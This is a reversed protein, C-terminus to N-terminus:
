KTVSDPFIAFNWDRDKYCGCLGTYKRNEIRKTPDRFKYTNDSDILALSFPDEAFSSIAYTRGSLRYLQKKNNKDLGACIDWASGFKFYQKRSISNRDKYLEEGNLNVLEGKDNSLQRILFSFPLYNEFINIDLRGNYYYLRPGKLLKNLFGFKNLPLEEIRKLLLNDNSHTMEQLFDLNYHTIGKILDGACDIIGDAYIEIMTIISENGFVNIKCGLIKKAKCELDKIVLDIESKNLKESFKKILLLQKLEPNKDHDSLNYWISPTMWFNSIKKYIEKLEDSGSELGKEILSM